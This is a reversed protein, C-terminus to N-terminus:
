DGVVGCTNLSFGKCWATYRGHGLTDLTRSAEGFSDDFNIRQRLDFSDNFSTLPVCRIHARLLLRLEDIRLERDQAGRWAHAGVHHPPTPSPAVHWYRFSAKICEPADQENEVLNKSSGIRIRRPKTPALQTFERRCRRM